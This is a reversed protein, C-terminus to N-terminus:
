SAGGGEDERRAKFQTAYGNDNIVHNSETVFYTGSLRPGVGLIRVKSGARLRPLGVSTISAKVMEKHQDMLIARARERAQRASFVPETVVHEERADCDMILGHLNANLRRIQPDNMDVKESIARQRNRDWGNVTVSKYQNATTLTPKFDVLSRGWELEYVIPDETSGSPGFYLRQPHDDNEEQIVVVYGRTKARKWLFDIDFEKKQAMYFIAEERSKASRDTVIPLPFRKDNNLERDRLTAINEAIDSDKRNHWEGDYKKRRLRHLM